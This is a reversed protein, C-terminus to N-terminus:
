WGGLNYFVEQFTSHYSTNVEKMLYITFYKYPFVNIFYNPLITSVGTKNWLIDQM